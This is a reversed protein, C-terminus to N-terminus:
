RTRASLARRWEFATLKEVRPARGGRDRDAGGMAGCKMEWGQQVQRKNVRVQHQGTLPTVIPSALICLRPVTLRIRRYLREYCNKGGRERRYLGGNM